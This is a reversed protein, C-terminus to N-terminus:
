HHSNWLIAGRVGASSNGIIFDAHSLLSLFYEFRMSPFIRFRDSNQLRLYENQIIETGHDNNPFIVVYNKKSDIVEDVLIRVQDQLGDLETTM